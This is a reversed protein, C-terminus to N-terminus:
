IVERGECLNVLEAFALMQPRRGSGEQIVKLIGNKKLKNLIGAISVKSPMLPKGELQPGVFVPIEFLCDLIPVAFQSHTLAILQTKLREYLDLIERVKESNARSQTEVATLFFRIWAEWTGTESISRLSNIYDARHAELYESLYFTPQRLMKKEFLFLPILLRGLRGNGDLFPHLIEFQGHIIALQVLPDPRDEHYYKEWNDLYDPLIEPRPPVFSAQQIPSDKIGIWNQIKRFRGRSKDRGRVSDLLIAHLTLLFNLNFPRNGLQKKAERLAARYNIIERIDHAKEGTFAQEGAEFRLVESLTAETGEIGSSMVAERTTLPSLM